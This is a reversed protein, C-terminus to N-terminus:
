EEYFEDKDTEDNSETPAHINILCVEKSKTRLQMTCMRKSISNFKCECSEYKKHIAFGTGFHHM